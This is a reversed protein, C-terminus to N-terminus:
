REVKRTTRWSRGLDAVVLLLAPPEAEVADIVSDILSSSAVFSANSAVWSSAVVVIFLQM